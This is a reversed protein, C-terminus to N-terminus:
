TSIVDNTRLEGLLEDVKDSIDQVETETPGTITQGLPNVITSGLRPVDLWNVTDWLKFRTTSGLYARMGEVNPFFLWGNYYAAINDAKGAWVGTPSSGTAYVDGNSPSGPPTDTISIITLSVMVEMRNVFDNFPVEGQAQGTVLLTSSHLPSLTM